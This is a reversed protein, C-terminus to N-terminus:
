DIKAGSAKIVAGWREMEDRLFAAAQEPTGGLPTGGMQRLKALVNADAALKVFERNLRDIVPRPTNAPVAIGTWAGSLITPYGLEGFTPVDPLEAVREKAAVALAKLTGAKIYPISSPTTDFMLQIQGGMLDTLSQVGTKYPVHVIDIGAARKFLEGSIHPTTGNGSSGFNLKGPNAKAYAILEPLTKFPLAPNIDLLNPTLTLLAVQEFNKVPDYPVSSYLLPNTAFATSTFLITYGDPAASAVSANGLNSAAGPRNEVIVPQGVATALGDAFLRGLSDASGGAGWPIVFRIPRDPYDAHATSAMCLAGLGLLTGLLKKM